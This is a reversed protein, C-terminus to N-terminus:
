KRVGNEFKVVFAGNYGKAIVEQLYSDAEAKTTFCGATYKFMGNHEYYDVDSLDKYVAGPNDLKMSRTTFQVKYVIGKNKDVAPKEYVEQLLEVSDKEYNTKYTCFARFIASALYDQGEASSM